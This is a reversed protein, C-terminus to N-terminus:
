QSFGELDRFRRIMSAELRALAARAEREDEDQQRFETEVKERLWDLDDGEIAGLVAARVHPGCKVLTGSHLAVFREAGDEREYVLIGPVLDTVFDGHAPLIGFHGEPAEAVIRLVEADLCVDAPTIVELRM